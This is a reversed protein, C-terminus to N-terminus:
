NWTPTRTRRNMGIMIHGTLGNRPSQRCAVRRDIIAGVRGSPTIFRGTPPDSQGLTRPAAERLAAGGIVSIHHSEPASNITMTESNNRPCWHCYYHSACWHPEKHSAVWHLLLLLLSHSNGQKTPIDTVTDTPMGSILM